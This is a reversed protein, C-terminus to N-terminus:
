LVESHLGCALVTWQNDPDLFPSQNLLSAELYLPLRRQLMVWVMLPFTEKFMADM